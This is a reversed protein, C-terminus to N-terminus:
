NEQLLFSDGHILYVSSGSPRNWFMFTYFLAAAHSGTVDSRRVGEGGLFLALSLSRAERSAQSAIPCMRM